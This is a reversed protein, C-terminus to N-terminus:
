RKKLITGGFGVAWAVGNNIDIDELSNKTKAREIYWTNGGTRTRLITGLEGIAWGKSTNMFRVSNLKANTGANQPRWYRGGNSTKVIRGRAGVAWGIRENVFYVANLMSRKNGGVRAPSWSDGADDTFLISGGGGVVAGVLTNAWAGDKMLFPSQSAQKKWEAKDNLSFITGMEGIALGNGNEAFTLRAIRSRRSDDFEVRKWTEGGDVTKMLYSPHRDGLQYINRECLAWGESRNLFKIDLITDRTFSRAVFWSQGGNRTRLLVGKKGGIWGRSSDSFEITTLWGLTKTPIKEWSAQVSVCFLSFCLSLLVVKKM